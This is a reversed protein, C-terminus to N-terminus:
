AAVAEKQLEVRLQKDQPSVVLAIQQAGTEPIDSISEAQDVWVPASLGHHEQLTRIIDLGAAIQGAHNVSEFPVGNVTATCVEAIGGNVQNEFLKFRVLRFKAAVKDELMSVKTRVFLECLHLQRELEEFEKALTREQEKLQEIRAEGKARAEHAQADQELLAVAQLQEAVRAELDTLAAPDGAMVAEIRRTLDDREAALQTYPKTRTVDATVTTEAKTLAETAKDVDAQLLALGTTQNRTKDLLMALEAASTDRKAKLSKGDDTIQALERAKRGNLDAVAAAHAAEVQEEPLAQHCAPCTGDTHADVKRANVEAWRARLDELRGDLRAVDATLDAHQAQWRDLRDNADVLARKAAALKDRAKDAADETKRRAQRELDTLSDEVERLRKREAAADGQGAKAAALEALADAHAARAATLAVAVKKAALEPAEPLGRRVEDIRAPLEQLERNLQPKRSAIVKRHEDLSRKGLVGPLEALAPESAIVDADSVDGCVDLLVKRREQWHLAQFAGPDSLLRWTAEDAIEAVKSTYEGKTVPVGDVFHSTEHGTMEAIPSGRKKTWVEAYVRRLTLEEGDVLFVGEVEHDAGSLPVGDVLTKIDFTKRGGSDKEFLLYSYADALTTKGSANKGHVAASQGALDLDFRKAGKFSRLRLSVLEIRKM